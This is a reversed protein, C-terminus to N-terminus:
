ELRNVRSVRARDHDATMAQDGFVSMPAAQEQRLHRALAAPRDLLEQLLRAELRPQRGIGPTSAGADPAEVGFHEALSYRQGAETGRRCGHPVVAIGIPRAPDTM